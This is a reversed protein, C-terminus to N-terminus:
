DLVVLEFRVSGDRVEALGMTHRPQRRRDTPSGPTSCSCATPGRRTCRSTRIASSSPTPRPSRPGAHAGHAEGGSRQRPADRHARRRARARARGAARAVVAPEDVNGHVAHVPPGLARIEALVGATSVDGAHLIADAGRLLEVCRDPLRRQGRPLHTDSIVALRTVPRRARRDARRRRPRLAGRVGAACPRGPHHAGLGVLRAADVRELPLPLRAQPPHQDAPPRRHAVGHGERRAVAVRAARVQNKGTKPRNRRYVLGGVETLWVDGKVARLLRRTGSTRFRNADVYNHLGWVAPERASTAGSSASGASWTPCTSCSPPSSRAARASGCSRSGTPASSSRGTAPRSAATTRRTGRRRLHRGVPLARPLPPVRVQLAVAVAAPAARQALARLLHAAPGRHAARRRAVRRDRRAPRPADHRGVPGARARPSIGMEAFRPDGFMTPKQDAIGVEVAAHAVPAAALAALAIAALLLARRM